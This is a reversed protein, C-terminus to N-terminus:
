LGRREFLICYADNIRAPPYLDAIRGFGGAGACISPPTADRSALKGCSSGGSSDARRIRLSLVRDRRPCRRYMHFCLVHDKCLNASTRAVPKEKPAPAIWPRCAAAHVTTPAETGRSPLFCEFRAVRRTHDQAGRM